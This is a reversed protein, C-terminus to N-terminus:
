KNKSINYIGKKRKHEEKYSEQHTSLKQFQENLMSGSHIIVKYVYLAEQFKVSANNYDKLKFLENGENKLNTAHLYKETEDMEWLCKQYCEPPQINILEIEIIFVIDDRSLDRYKRHLFKKYEILDTSYDIDNQDGVNHQKMLTKKYDIHHLIEEMKCYTMMSHPTCLFLSTEGKEMTNICKEFAFSSFKKGLRLEFPTDNNLNHTNGVLTVTFNENLKKKCNSQIMSVHKNKFYDVVNDDFLFQKEIKKWGKKKNPDNSDTCILGHVHGSCRGCVDHDFSDQKENILEPNTFSNESFSLIWTRYHFSANSGDEWKEKEVEFNLNDNNKNGLKLICGDYLVEKTRNM